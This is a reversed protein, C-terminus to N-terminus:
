SQQNAGDTEGTLISYLRGLMALSYILLTIAAYGIDSLVIVLFNMGQYDGPKFPFQFIISGAIILFGGILASLALIAIRNVTQTFDQLQALLAYTDVSLRINLHQLALQRLETTVFPNYWGKKKSRLGALYPQVGPSQLTAAFLIVTLLGAIAFPILFPLKLFSFWSLPLLTVFVALMLLQIKLPPDSQWLMIKYWNQTLLKEKEPTEDEWRRAADELFLRHFRYGGGVPEKWILGSDVLSRITDTTHSIKWIKGQTKAWVAHAAERSFVPDGIFEGPPNNQGWVGLQRYCHQHNPALGTYSLDLLTKFNTRDTGSLMPTLSQSLTTDIKGILDQLNIQRAQHKILGLTLPLFNLLEGLRGVQAAFPQDHEPANFIKAVAKQWEDPSFVPVHIIDNPDVPSQDVAQRNQSIVIVVTQSGCAILQRWPTHVTVDDFVLIFRRDGFFATLHQQFLEPAHFPVEEIGFWRGIDQLQLLRSEPTAELSALSFYGTGFSDNQMEALLDQVLSTCGSGPAGWVGIVKMKPQNTEWFGSIKASLAKLLAERKIFPGDQNVPQFKRVEKVPADKLIDFVFDLEWDRFLELREDDSLALVKVIESATELSTLSSGSVIQSIQTPKLKVRRGLETASMGRETLKRSLITQAKYYHEKGM